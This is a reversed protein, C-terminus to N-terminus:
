NTRMAGCSSSPATSALRAGTVPEDDALPEDAVFGIVHMSALALESCITTRNDSNQCM